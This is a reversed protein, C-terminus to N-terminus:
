RPARLRRRAPRSPSSVVVPDYRDGRAPPRLVPASPYAPTYLPDPRRPGVAGICVTAHEWWGPPHRDTGGETRAPDRNHGVVRGATGNVILPGGPTPEPDVAVCQGGPDILLMLPRLCRPCVTWPIVGSM